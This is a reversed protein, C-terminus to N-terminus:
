SKIALSQIVLDQGRGPRAAEGLDAQKRGGLLSFMVSRGGGCGHPPRM